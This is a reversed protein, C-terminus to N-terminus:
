SASDSLMSTKGSNVHEFLKGNKAPAKKEGSLTFIMPPLMDM